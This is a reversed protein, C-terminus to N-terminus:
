LRSAINPRPTTCSLCPGCKDVKLLHHLLAVDVQCVIRLSYVLGLMLSSGILADRAVVLLPFLSNIDFSPNLFVDQLIMNAEVFDWVVAPQTQETALSMLLQYLMDGVISPVPLHSGLPVDRVVRRKKDGTWIWM